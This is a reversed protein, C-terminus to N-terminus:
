QNPSEPKKMSEDNTMQLEHAVRRVSSHGFKLSWLIVFVSRRRSPNRPTPDPEEPTGESGAQPFVLTLPQLEASLRKRNGDLLEEYISKWQDLV